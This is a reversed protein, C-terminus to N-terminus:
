IRPESHKENQSDSEDIDNSVSESNVRMSAAAKVAVHRDKTTIGSLTENM